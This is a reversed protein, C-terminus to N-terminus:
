YDMFSPQYYDYNPIEQKKKKKRPADEDEEIMIGEQALKKKTEETLPKNKVKIDVLTQKISAAEKSKLITQEIRNKQLLKEGENVHKLLEQHEM